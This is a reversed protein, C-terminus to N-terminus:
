DKVENVVGIIAMHYWIIMAIGLFGMLTFWSEYVSELVNCFIIAYLSLLSIVTPLVMFIAYQLSFVIYPMYKNYTHSWMYITSPTFTIFLVTVTQFLQICVIIFFIWQSSENQANDEYYNSLGYIFSSVLAPASIM